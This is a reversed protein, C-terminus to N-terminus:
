DKWMVVTFDRPHYDHRLSVRSTLTQCFSLVDCPDAYFENPEKDTAKSSLTNFAVVERALSFMKRIINQMLSWANPGLLYFIGNAMVVDFTEQTELTLINAQSISLDPHLRRAHEVMSACIDWGTYSKPPNNQVLFGAFDAFGCGVDLLHKDRLLVSNALIEFKVRQSKDHGYDCALPSHGHQCVLRNYYAEINSFPEKM